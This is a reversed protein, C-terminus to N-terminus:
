FTGTLTQLAALAVRYRVQVDDYANRAATLTNQADVVDLATSAGGQYRLNILRLSEAALDAARRLTDVASRAVAAENYSSFLNNLMQRQAQSLAAQAAQQRYESQHLKSRLTGWDWVPITMAATVFYGLNPVPGIEPFSARISRLAFANAEIGYDTDVSLTPYFSTKAAKVDLNAERLTELAVRLDPNEHGAMAQVEPFIPLPPASELDDVATFNENLQPFLMVALNLRAEEMTLKAEEFAQGLQTYQIDAKVEDSHAAQGAREAEQTMELFHRAQEVAQQATAYKRQSVVLAYFNKTVAVTLGRRAVEAKANALAEAATTRHYATAMFTGPSLDQHFVGWSRYVHTGDNTVFRGDSIKGGNGQTGLYQMSGNVSPLLTARAQTRDEHASKADLVAATYIADLKSARDLADKLTVTIPPTSQGPGQPQVLQVQSERGASPANAQAAIQTPLIGLAVALGIALIVPCARFSDWRAPATKFLRPVASCYSRFM